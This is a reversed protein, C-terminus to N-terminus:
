EHLRAEISITSLRGERSITAIEVGHNHLLQVLAAEDCCPFIVPVQSSRGSLAEAGALLATTGEPQPPNQKSHGSKSDTGAPASNFAVLALKKYLPRKLLQHVFFGGNPRSDPSVHVLWLVPTSAARDVAFLADDISNFRVTEGMREAYDWALGESLPPGGSGEEEVVALKGELEPSFYAPLRVRFVTGEGYVSSVQVEGGHAETIEKVITLGLGTGRIKRHEPKEVRYFKKFLHPMSSAPIGLGYDRISIVAHGDERFLSIDVYEAEPSYKIANSILNHLVQIIKEKDARILVEEQPQELRLTHQEKGQHQEVLEELQIGLALPHFHYQQRGAEMRQIDLFDDILASLRNAENYITQLYKMRREPSVERLLMIETFGLISAMPTRLEHSVVGIFDNKMRNLREEETRNRFVFLYGIHQNGREDKVSAAYFEFFVLEGSPGPQELYLDIQETQGQLLNGILSPLDAGAGARLGLGALFPIIQQGARPVGPFFLSLRPNTYTIRGQTDTMIFGEHSTQLVSRLSSYLVTESYARDISDTTEASRIIASGLTLFGAASVAHAFWWLGNWPTSLIFALSTQVFMLQAILHYRLLSSRKRLLILQVAALLAICLSLGEILKVRFVSLWGWEAALGTILSIVAFLILRSWWWSRKVPQAEAPQQKLLRQLGLFVYICMVLRSVPGYVVFMLLHHGALPTFFGHFSYIVTFGIYGLAMYRLSSDLEALYSRFASYGLFASLTVAVAILLGHVSGYHFKQSHDATIQLFGIGIVPLFILLLLNLNKLWRLLRM